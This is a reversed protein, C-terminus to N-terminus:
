VKIGADRAVGVTIGAFVLRNAYLDYARLKAFLCAEDARKIRDELERKALAFEVKQESTLAKEPKDRWALNNANYAAEPYPGTGEDHWCVCEPGGSEKSPCGDIHHYYQHIVPM